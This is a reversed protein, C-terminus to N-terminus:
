GVFMGVFRCGLAVTAAARNHRVNSASSSVSTALLISHGESIVPRTLSYRVEWPAAHCFANNKQAAVGHAFFIAMLASAALTLKM